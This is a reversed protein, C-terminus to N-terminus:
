RRKARVAALPMGVSRLQRRQAASRARLAGHAGADDRASELAAPAAALVSGGGGGGSCRVGTEAPSTETAGERCAAVGRKKSAKVCVRLACRLALLAAALRWAV